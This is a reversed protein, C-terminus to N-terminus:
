SITNFCNLEQTTQVEAFSHSEESFQSYLENWIEEIRRSTLTSVDIRSVTKCFNWPKIRVELYKKRKM